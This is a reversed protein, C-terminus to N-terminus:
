GRAHHLERGQGPDAVAGPSPLGLWQAPGPTFPTQATIASSSRMSAFVPRDDRAAPASSRRSPPQGGNPAGPRTTPGWDNRSASSKSARVASYSQAGPGGPSRTPPPARSAGNAGDHLLRRRELRGDLLHVAAGGGQADHQRGAHVLVCGFALGGVAGGGPSRWGDGVVRGPVVCVHVRGDVAAAGADSMLRVDLQIELAESNMQSGMADPYRPRQESVAETETLANTLNSQAARNNAQEEINTVQGPPPASISVAVGYDTLDEVM